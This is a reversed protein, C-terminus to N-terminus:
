GASRSAPRVRAVEYFASWDPDTMGDAFATEMKRRISAGTEFLVGVREHAGQMLTVDKLGAAM